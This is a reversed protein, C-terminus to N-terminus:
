PCECRLDGVLKRLKKWQPASLKFTRTAYVENKPTTNVLVIVAHGAKHTAIKIDDGSHFADLGLWKIAGDEAEAVLDRPGDPREEQLEDAALSEAEELMTKGSFMGITRLVAPEMKKKPVTSIGLKM